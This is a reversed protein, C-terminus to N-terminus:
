ERTFLLFLLPHHDLFVYDITRCHYLVVWYEVGGPSLKIYPLDPNSDFLWRCCTISLCEHVHVHIIFCLEAVSTVRKTHGKLAILYCTM